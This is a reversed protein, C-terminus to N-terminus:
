FQYYLNIGFNNANIRTDGDDLTVGENEIDYFMNTYRFGVFLFPALKYGYEASYGLANKFSIDPNGFDSGHLLINTHYSLGLGLRHNKYCFTPILEVPYRDMYVTGTGTPSRDLKYGATLRTEFYNSPKFLLGLYFFMGGGAEVDGKDPGDVVLEGVDDGGTSSEFGVLMTIRKPTDEAQAPAALIVACVVTFIGMALPPHIKGAM